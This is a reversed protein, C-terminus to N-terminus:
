RVGISTPSNRGYTRFLPEGLLIDVSGKAENAIYKQILLCDCATHQLLQAKLTCIEARLSDFCAPLQRNQSEMAQECSALMSAEDRKRIRYKSSRVHNFELDSRRQSVSPTADKDLGTSHNAGQGRKQAAKGAKGPRRM